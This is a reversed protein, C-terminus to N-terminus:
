DGHYDRKAYLNLMIGVGIVVLLLGIIMLIIAPLLLPYVAITTPVWGVSPHGGSSVIPELVQKYVPYNYPEIRLSVIIFALGACLIVLGKTQSSIM